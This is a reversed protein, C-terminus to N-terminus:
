NHIAIVLVIMMLKIMVIKNMMLRGQGEAMLALAAGTAARYSGPGGGAGELKGFM